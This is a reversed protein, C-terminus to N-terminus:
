VGDGQATHKEVASMLVRRKTARKIITQTGERVDHVSPLSSPRQRKLWTLLGEADRNGVIGTLRGNSIEQIFPSHPKFSVM